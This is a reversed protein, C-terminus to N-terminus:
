LNITAGPRLNRGGNLALLELARQYKTLGSKPYRDALAPYTDGELVEGYGPVPVYEEVEELPREFDTGDQVFGDGDGDTAKPKYTAKPM